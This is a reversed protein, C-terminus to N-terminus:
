SWARREASGPPTRGWSRKGVEMGMAPTPTVVGKKNVGEIPGPFLADGGTETGEPLTVVATGSGSIKESACSCGTFVLEVWPAVVTM